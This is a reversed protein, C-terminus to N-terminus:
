FAYGSAARAKHKALAAEFTTYNNIESEWKRKFDFYAPCKKENKECALMLKEGKAFERSLRGAVDNPDHLACGSIITLLTFIVLKSM